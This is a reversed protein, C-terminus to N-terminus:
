ILQRWSTQETKIKTGKRKEFMGPLHRLIFHLGKIVGDFTQAAIEDVHDISNMQLDIMSGCEDCLFHNHPEPRGDFRDPGNGTPIKQINGLEALLSLNRYVTALSLKPYEERLNMYVTEATPHDYRTALFQETADRQKSHKLM